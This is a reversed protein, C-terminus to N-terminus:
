QAGGEVIHVNRFSGDPDCYTRRFEGQQRTRFRLRLVLTNEITRQYIGGHLGTTLQNEWPGADQECESMELPLAEADDPLSRVLNLLEQKNM